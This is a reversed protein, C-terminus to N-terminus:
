VIDGAENRLPEVHIDHWRKRPTDEFAIEARAPKGTALADRKLAIIAAASEAPLIDEDTHGLIAEVPRGLMPNSVSTYRLNRDETYVTVQSGRLAAEYRSFRARLLNLEGAQAYVQAELQQCQKKSAALRGALETNEAGYEPGSM